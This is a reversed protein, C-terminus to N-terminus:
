CSYCSFCAGVPTDLSYQHKCVFVAVAVAVAVIAVVAVAAVIAVIAVVAVISVFVNMCCVVIASIAATLSLSLCFAFM